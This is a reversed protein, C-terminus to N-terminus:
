KCAGALSKVSVVAYEGLAGRDIDAEIRTRSSRDDGRDPDVKTREEIKVKADKEDPDVAIASLQVQQGVYKSLTVGERATLGFTTMRGSTGVKGDDVRTEASTTVKSRDNDVDTEVKTRTSLKDDGAVMTGLLTFNGAADRQLCGTMSVVKADDAKVKTESTVKTDQASAAVSMAMAVACASLIRRM